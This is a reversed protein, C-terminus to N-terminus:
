KTLIHFTANTVSALDLPAVVMQYGVKGASVIIREKTKASQDILTPWQKKMGVPSCGGRVYGTEETLQSLPLMDVKKVGTISAVKKLDLHDAVPILCVFRQEGSMTVLTKYVDDMPEGTKKAVSVGDVQGDTVDYSQLTYDIKQRELQRLANTKVKKKKVM